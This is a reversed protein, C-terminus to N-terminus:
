SITSSTIKFAYYQNARKQNNSSQKDTVFTPVRLHHLRTVAEM